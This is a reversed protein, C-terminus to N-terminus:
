LVALLIDGTQIEAQAFTFYSSVLNQQLVSKYFVPFKYIGLDFSENLTQAANQIPLNMDAQINYEHGKLNITTTIQM